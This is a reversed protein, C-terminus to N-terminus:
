GGDDECGQGRLEVFARLGASAVIQAAEPGHDALVVV